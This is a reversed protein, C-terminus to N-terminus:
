SWTFSEESYEIRASDVRNRAADRYSDALGGPGCVNVSIAGTCTGVKPTAMDELLTDPVPRGTFFKAKTGKPVRPTPTPRTVYVEIELIKRGADFHWLDELWESVWSYNELDPVIWALKIRRASVLGQASDILLQRIHGLPHTIGSGGAIFLLTSFSEFSFSENTYPGEVFCTYKRTPLMPPKEPDPNQLPAVADYLRKTFGERRAIVFHITTSEPASVRTPALEVTSSSPKDDDITDPVPTDSTSWAM